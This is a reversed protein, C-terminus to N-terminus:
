KAFTERYRGPTTGLYRRFVNSFHPQDAFGARLAIESISATSETLQAAAHEVRLRRIYEGVTCGFYRRFARAVTVPHVGCAQAVIALTLRGAFQEHILDRATRLWPPRGGRVAGSDRNRRAAWAVLELMLGEIALPAAADMGRFEDYIRTAIAAGAGGQFHLPEDLAPAYPRLMQLRPQGVEIMLGRASRDFHNCHRQGAPTFKLTAPTCTMATGRSREVFGGQLVFCITPGDHWHWPLDGGAEHISETLTFGAIRAQRVQM